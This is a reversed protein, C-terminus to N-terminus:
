ILGLMKNTKAFEGFYKIAAEDYTIAAEIPDDFYGLSKNKENVKIRARYKTSRIDFSVGKYGTKNTSIIITNMANQSKTCERLNQINNNLKDGDIHDIYEPFYGHHCAFIVRHLKHTNQNLKINYYGCKKDLTPKIIGYGVRSVNNNKINFKYNKYNPVDLWDEDFRYIMNYKKIYKSITDPHVNIKDAIQIIKLHEIEYLIKITNIIDNNLKIM